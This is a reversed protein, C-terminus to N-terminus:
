ALLWETGVRCLRAYITVYISQQAWPATPLLGWGRFRGSVVLIEITGTAHPVNDVGQKCDLEFATLFEAGYKSDGNMGIIQLVCAAYPVRQICCVRTIGANM